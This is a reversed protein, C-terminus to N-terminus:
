LNRPFIAALALFVLGTIMFPFSGSAGTLDLVLAVALITVPASLPISSRPARV